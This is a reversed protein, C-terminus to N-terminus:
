TLYCMKPSSHYLFIIIKAWPILLSISLLWDFWNGSFLFSLSIEFYVLISRELSILRRWVSHMPRTSIFAILRVDIRTEQPVNEILSGSVVWTIGLYHDCNSVERIRVLNSSMLSYNLAIITISCSLVEMRPEM